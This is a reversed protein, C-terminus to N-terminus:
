QERTKVSVEMKSNAETLDRVRRELDKIKEKYALSAHGSLAQETLKANQEEVDAKDKRLRDIQQELEVVRDKTVQLLKKDHGLSSTKRREEQMDKNL